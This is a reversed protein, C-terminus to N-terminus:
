NYYVLKLKSFVFSLRADVIDQCFKGDELRYYEASENFQVKDFVERRVAIHSHHIGGVGEETIINTNEPHKAIVRCYTIEDIDDFTKDEGSKYGHIFAQVETGNFIDRTVEIKQPHPIDDVDFFVIVDKTSVRAGANRAVSQMTREESNHNIIPVEEGNVHLVELPILDEEKVGSSSIIIEDPLVVQTAFKTLLPVLLHYDGDYCTICLSITPKM